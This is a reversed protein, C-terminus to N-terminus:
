RVVVEDGVKPDQDKEVIRGSPLKDQVDTIVLEGLRTVKKGLIECM